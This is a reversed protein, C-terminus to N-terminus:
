GKRKRVKIGHPNNRLNQKWYNESGGGALAINSKNTKDSYYPSSKWDEWTTFTEEEGWEDDNFEERNDDFYESFNGSKFGLNQKNIWQRPSDESDYNVWLDTIYDVNDLEGDNDDDLDLRNPIGDGDLDNKLHTDTLEGMEKKIPDCLVRKCGEPDEDKSCRKLCDKLRMELGGKTETIFEGLIRKNAENISQRKLKGLRSM